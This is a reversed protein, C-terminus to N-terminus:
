RRRCGRGSRARRGDARGRPVASRRRLPANVMEGARLLVQDGRELQVDCHGFEALHFAIVRVDANIGLLEALREANPIAISWPPAYSERLLLSGSIRLSRLANDIVSSISNMETADAFFDTAELM